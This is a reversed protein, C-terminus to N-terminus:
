HVLLFSIHVDSRSAALDGDIGPLIVVNWVGVNEKGAWESRPLEVWDSYKIISDKTIGYTDKYTNYLRDQFLKWARDSIFEWKYEDVMNSIYNGQSDKVKKGNKKEYQKILNGTKVRKVYKLWATDKVNVVEREYLKKLSKADKSKISNLLTTIKSVRDKDPLKATNKMYDIVYKSTKPNDKLFSVIKNKLDPTIKNLRLDDVVAALKTIKPDIKSGQKSGLSFNIVFNPEKELKGKADLQKTYAYFLVPNEKYIGERFIRCVNLALNSYDDSFFDGSDHFRVLLHWTSDKFDSKMKNYESKIESVLKDQFGKPDNMLFNLKQVMKLAPSEFQVYGGKMAFCHAKCSGAMPCTNVIHFSKEPDSEDVILGTLAPLGLNFVKETGGTSHESKENFSLLTEPRKMILSRLKDLNYPTGSADLIEGNMLNGKEDYVSISKITDNHIYPAIDKRKLIAKSRADEAAAKTNFINSGIVIDWKSPEFNVGERDKRKTADPTLLMRPIRLEEDKSNKHIMDVFGYTGDSRKEINKSLGRTSNISDILDSFEFDTYRKTNLKSLDFSIDIPEYENTDKENLMNKSKSKISEDMQILMASAEQPSYDDDYLKFVDDWKINTIKIDKYYSEDAVIRLLTNIWFKKKPSINNEPNESIEVLKIIKSTKNLKESLIANQICKLIFTNNKM